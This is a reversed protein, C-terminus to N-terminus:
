ALFLLIAVLLATIAWLLFITDMVEMPVWRGSFNM